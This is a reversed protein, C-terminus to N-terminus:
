LKVIKRCNKFIIGFETKWVIKFKQLAQLNIILGNDNLIIVESESLNKQTFSVSIVPYRM